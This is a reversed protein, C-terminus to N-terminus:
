MPGVTLWQPARDPGRLDPAATRRWGRDPRAPRRGIPGPSCSSASGTAHIVRGLPHHLQVVQGTRSSGATARRRKTVAQLPAPRPTRTTGLHQVSRDLVMGSHDAHGRATPRFTSLQPCPVSIIQQLRQHVGGYSLATSRREKYLSPRRNLGSRTGDQRLQHSVDRM